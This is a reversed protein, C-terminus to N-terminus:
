TADIYYSEWPSKRFSQADGTTTHPQLNTFYIPIYYLYFSTFPNKYVRTTNCIHLMAKVDGSPTQLGMITYSKLNNKHTSQANIKAVNNKIM